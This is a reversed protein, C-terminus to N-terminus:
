NRQLRGHDHGFDCSRIEDCCNLDRHIHFGLAHVHTHRHAKGRSRRDRLDAVVVTRHIGAFNHGAMRARTEDVLRGHVAVHHQHQYMCYNELKDAVATNDVAEAAAKSDRPVVVAVVVVVVVMLESHGEVALMHLPGALKRVLLTHLHLMLVGVMGITKRVESPYLYKDAQRLPLERAVM